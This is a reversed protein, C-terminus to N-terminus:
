TPNLVFLSVLNFAGDGDCSGVSQRHYSFYTELPLKEQDALKLYHAVATVVPSTARVSKSVGSGKSAKQCKKGTKM